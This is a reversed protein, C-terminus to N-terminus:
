RINNLVLGFYDNNKDRETTMTRKHEKSLIERGWFILEMSRDVSYGGIQLQGWGGVVM